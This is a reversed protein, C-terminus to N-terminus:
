KRRSVKKKAKKKARKKTKKKDTEEVASLYDLVAKKAFAFINNNPAAIIGKIEALQSDTVIVSNGENIHEAIHLMDISGTTTYIVNAIYKHLEQGKAQKVRKGTLDSLKIKTLDIKMKM